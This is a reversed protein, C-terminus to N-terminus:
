GGSVPPILALEDGASLRCSEAAYSENVAVALSGRMSAVDPFKRALADLADAVTAREPLVLSLQREGIQAALTAFMLIRITM